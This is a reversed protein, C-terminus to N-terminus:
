RRNSEHIKGPTLPQGAELLESGTALLGTVPRRGVCVETVGVAALLNIRGATLIDGPEGLVAGPKIDEGQFRINEWPKVVDLFSVVEPQADDLVTDEQWAVADAGHPLPSGTFIRVCSGTTVEGSFTEGAAVRGILRLSVPSSASAGQLDATRVAYGDVASNDFAPLAAPSLVREVLIRRHALGLDLPETQVPPLSALIREIAAELEIM